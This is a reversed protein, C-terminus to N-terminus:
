RLGLISNSGMKFSIRNVNNKITPSIFRFKTKSTTRSSHSMWCFVTMWTKIFCICTCINGKAHNWKPNHKCTMKDGSILNWKQWFSWLSIVFAILKIKAQMIYVTIFFQGSVSIFISWKMWFSIWKVWFSIDHLCGRVIVAKRPRHHINHASSSRM